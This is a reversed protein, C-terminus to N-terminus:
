CGCCLFITNSHNKTSQLVSPNNSVYILSDIMVDILLPNMDIKINDQILNLVYTKKQLGSMNNKLSIDETDKIYKLIANLLISYNLKENLDDIGM